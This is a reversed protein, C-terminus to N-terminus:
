STNVASDAVLAESLTRRFDAGEAENFGGVREEAAPTLELSHEM